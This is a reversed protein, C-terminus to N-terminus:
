FPRAADPAVTMEFCAVQAELRAPAKSAFSVPM